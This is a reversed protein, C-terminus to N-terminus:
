LSSKELKEKIEELKRRDADGVIPYQLEMSELAEAIVAAVVTRAWWKRDAPVVYWPAEKTVTNRIADEYADQYHEWLNREEIDGASFKWLKESEALRSLLRRRQEDKSVNFFIKRVMTGNRSLHEEHAVISEFRHRWVKGANLSAPLRQRDLLEPHVRVVLVEEYYSRNFIGIHGRRPLRISTRWLFDHDLEEDSPIKFAHVQCGQPNLGTFVHEIASDKGAADMGQLVVLLSWEDQAYLREQLERIRSTYRELLEAAKERTAEEPLFDPAHDRLRFHRGTAARYPGLDIRKSM